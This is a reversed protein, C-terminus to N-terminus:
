TQGCFNLKPGLNWKLIVYRHHQVYMAPLYLKCNVMSWYLCCSVWPQMAVSSYGSFYPFIYFILYRWLVLFVLTNDSYKFFGNRWFCTTNLILCHVWVVAIIYSGESAYSKNTSQAKWVMKYTAITNNTFLGRTHHRGIFKFALGKWETIEGLVSYLENHWKDYWRFRRKIDDSNTLNNNDNRHLQQTKKDAHLTDSRGSDEDKNAEHPSAEMQDTQFFITFIVAWRYYM